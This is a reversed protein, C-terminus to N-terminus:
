GHQDAVLASLRLAVCRSSKEETRMAREVSARLCFIFVLNFLYVMTRLNDPSLSLAYHYYHYHYHYHYYYYNLM